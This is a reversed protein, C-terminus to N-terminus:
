VSYTYFTYFEMQLVGMAGNRGKEIKWDFIPSPVDIIALTDINDYKKYFQLM